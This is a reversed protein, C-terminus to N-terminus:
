LINVLQNYAKFKEDASVISMKEEIATVILFRDFPDKHDSVFPLSPYASIHNNSVPL